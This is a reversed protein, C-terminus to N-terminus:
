PLRKLGMGPSRTRVCDARESAWSSRGASDSTQSSQNQNSFSLGRCDGPNKITRFHDSRSERGCRGGM